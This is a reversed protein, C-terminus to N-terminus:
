SQAVGPFDTQVQTVNFNFPQFHNNNGSFDKGLGTQTADAASQWNLYFGNPGFNFKSVVDPGGIPVIIGNVNKAFKTWDWCLGDISIVEALRARLGLSHGLSDADTGICQPRVANWTSNGVVPGQTILVGDVYVTSHAGDANWLFHHWKTDSLQGLVYNNMHTSSSYGMNVSDPSAVGAIPGYANAWYINVVNGGVDSGEVYIGTFDGAGGGWYAAADAASVICDTLYSANGYFFYPRNQAVPWKIFCSFSFVSRNSNMAPTRQFFPMTSMAYGTGTDPSMFQLSRGVYAQPATPEGPPGVNFVDLLQWQTGDFVLLWIQNPVGDGAQIPSGDPHAVPHVPFNNPAFDTPGYITQNLKVEVTRGENINPLVPAYLGIVHNKFTANVQDSDPAGTDHVYPIDVQHLTTTGGVGGDAGMNQLQFFTGDCVLTAIQGAVMDNAVLEGGDRRHISTPNLNGITITTPGTVTHGVLVHLTLGQAYNTIPPLLNAIEVTNLPGSDLCYILKGDRVARTMQNLDEDTPVQKSNGILNVIERQPFEFASAPPVSGKRGISPDGNIYSDDSGITGPPGYPPQYKM